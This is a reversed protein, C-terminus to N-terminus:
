FFMGSRRFITRIEYDLKRLFKLYNESFPILNIAKILMVRDQEGMGM